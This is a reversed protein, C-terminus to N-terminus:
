YSKVQHIFNVLSFQTATYLTKWLNDFDPHPKDIGLTRLALLMAKKLNQICFLFQALVFLVSVSVLKNEERLQKSTEADIILQVQRSIPPVLDPKSIQNNKQSSNSSSLSLVKSISKRKKSMAYQLLKGEKFSSLSSSINNNSTSIKDVDAENFLAAYTIIGENNIFVFSNKNTSICAFINDLDNLDVFKAM